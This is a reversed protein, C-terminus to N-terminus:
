SVRKCFNKFGTGLCSLLTTGPVVRDKIVKFKVSFCENILRLMDVTRKTIEAGLRIKSVDEPCLVMFMVLIPATIRDFCGANEIEALLKYAADTALDEPINREPSSQLEISLTSYTTSEATLSLGFGPSKGGETGKCHDSNIYVDPIFSNFVGRASKIIRNVTEPSMRTCFATGKIRKILGPDVVQIPKLERVVPCRFVVEGGGLPALGRKKVKLDAGEIGFYALLPLLTNKFTDVSMDGSGDTIGTLTLQLPMKGFPAMLILGELFYGINKERGCDFTLRGGAIMGPSIKVTTGTDSIYIKSGNTLEGAIKIFKAEYDTIGPVEEKSRIRSIRCVKRSLLSSMIRERFLKAGKFDIQQVKSM